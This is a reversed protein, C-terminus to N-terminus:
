QIGFILRVPLNTILKLWSGVRKNKTNPKVLFLGREYIVAGFKNRQIIQRSKEISETKNDQRRLFM